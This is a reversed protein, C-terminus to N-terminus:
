QKTVRKVGLVKGSADAFQLLYVGDSVKDLAVRYEPSKLADVTFRAVRKGIVNMVNITTIRKDNINLNVYETAPNPYITVMSNIDFNRVATPWTNFQFVMDGYNTAVTVFVPGDVATPQATMSVDLIAKEGAHVIVTRPGTTLNWPICTGAASNTIEDCIGSSSWGTPLTGSVRNWTLTISDSTNNFLTDYLRDSIGDKHFGGFVVTDKWISVQAMAGFSIFFAVFALLIKKM